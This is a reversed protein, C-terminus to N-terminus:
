FRDDLQFYELIVKDKIGIKVLSESIWTNYENNLDTTFHNKWDGVIGKRVFQGPGEKWTDDRKNASSVKQFNDFQLFGDLRLLM